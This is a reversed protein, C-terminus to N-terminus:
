QNKNRGFGTAESLSRDPDAAYCYFKERRCLQYYQQARFGSTYDVSLVIKGQETFRDLWALRGAIASEANKRKGDYWVDEVGIGDVANLYADGAAMGILEEGNQPIILFGPDTDKAIASLSRVFQIMRDAAEERTAPDTHLRGEKGGGYVGDNGWYEYADIIDLYVGSFGTEQIKKLESTVIQQWAPTWYRVKISEPWEPNAISGAWEPAAPTITLKGNKEQGWENKWYPLYSSAEGISLYAIPEAGSQRIREIERRTYPVAGDKTRDMVAYEVPLTVLEDVSADQLQYVWTPRGEDLGFFGAYLLAAAIAGIGAIMLWKGM